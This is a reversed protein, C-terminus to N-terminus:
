LSTAIKYHLEASSNVLCVGLDLYLVINQRSLRAKTTASYILIPSTNDLLGQFMRQGNVHVYEGRQKMCVELLLILWVLAGPM